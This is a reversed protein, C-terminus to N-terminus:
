GASVDSVGYRGSALPNSRFHQSAHAPSNPSFPSTQTSRTSTGSSRRFGKRSRTCTAWRLTARSASCAEFRARKTITTSTCRSTRSRNEGAFPAAGGQEALLEAYNEASINFKRRLHGDRERAKVEPRQRRRKQNERYRDPNERQWRRVREIAADPNAQYRARSIERFCAKCEGRYGDKATSARHFETLPKLDGCIRCSKM